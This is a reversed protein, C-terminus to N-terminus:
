EVRSLTLFTSLVKKWALRSVRYRSILSVDKHIGKEKKIIKPKVMGKITCYIKIIKM